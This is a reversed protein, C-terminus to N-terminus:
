RRYAPRIILRYLASDSGKIGKDRLTERAAEVTMRSQSRLIRIGEEIQEMALSPKRGSGPKRKPKDPQTSSVPRMRGMLRQAVLLMEQLRLMEARLPSQQLGRMAERMPSARAGEAFNQMARGIESTRAAEAFNKLLSSPECDRDRNQKRWIELLPRPM